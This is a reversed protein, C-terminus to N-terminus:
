VIVNVNLNIIQKDISQKVYKEIETKMFSGFGDYMSNGGSVVINSLLDSRIDSDCKIVAEIVYKAIQQRQFEKKYDIIKNFDMDYKGFEIQKAAHPLIYGDYIPCIQTLGYGCQIVLGTTKGACYISLIPSVWVALAEGKIEDFFMQTLRKWDEDCRLAVADIIHINFQKVDFGKFIYELILKFYTWEIIKGREIVRKINILSQKDKMIELIKNGIIINENNGNKEIAVLSPIIMSPLDNGCIGAKIASSGIEIIITPLDYENEPEPPKLPGDLQYYPIPILSQTYSVIIPIVHFSFLASAARTYKTYQIPSHIVKEKVVYKTLSRLWYSAIQPVHNNHWVSTNKSSNVKEESM